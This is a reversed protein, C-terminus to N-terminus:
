TSDSEGSFGLEVVHLCSPLTVDCNLYGHMKLCKIEM